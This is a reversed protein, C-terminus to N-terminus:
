SKLVTKSIELPNISNEKFPYIMHGVKRVFKVPIKPNNISEVKPVNAKGTLSAEWKQFMPELEKSTMVYIEKLDIHRYTAFSWPVSRYKQLIKFNLHHHTSFGSVKEINASKMEWEIGLSDIADNGERGALNKFNLLVLQQLVKAGNDQFIDDIGYKIGFQNLKQLGKWLNEFEEILQRHEKGLYEMFINDSCLSSFNFM